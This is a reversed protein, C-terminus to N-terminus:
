LLWFAIFVAQIIITTVFLARYIRYKKKCKQTIDPKFPTDFPNYPIYTNPDNIVYVESLYQCDARYKCLYLHANERKSLFKAFVGLSGNSSIIFKCWSLLYLDLYGKDSGNEDCIKYKIERLHPAINEKIWHPEDSFFYFCVNKHIANIINISKLFYEVSASYGYAPHFDGLDGRRCHVGCSNGNQINQLLKYLSSNKNGFEKPCFYEKFYNIIDAKYPIMYCREAPFGEIYLPPPFDLLSKSGDYKYKQKYLKVEDDSAFELALKPFAKDIDYNRAFAMNNCMGYEKFWTLDYKVQYGKDTFYQGLSAYYIQSCLGGETRIIILNDKKM